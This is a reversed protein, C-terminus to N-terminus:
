DTVWNSDNYESSTNHNMRGNRQSLTDQRCYQLLDNVAAIRYGLFVEHLADDLDTKCQRIWKYGVCHSSPRQRPLYNNRPTGQRTGDASEASTEVPM